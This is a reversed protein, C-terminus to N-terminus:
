RYGFHDLVIRAADDPQKSDTDIVMEDLDAEDLQRSLDAHRTLHWELATSQSATYRGRLRRETVAPSAVLRVSRITLGLAEAYRRRDAPSSIVGSIILQRPGASQYTSWVFAM